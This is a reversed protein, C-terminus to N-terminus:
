ENPFLKSYMNSASTCSQNANIILADIEKKISDRNKFVWDGVEKAYLDTANTREKSLALAKTVIIKDSETAKDTFGETKVSTKILDLFEAAHNLYAIWSDISQVPLAKKLESFDNKAGKIKNLTSDISAILGAEDKSASYLAIDKAVDSIKELTIQLGNEIETAKLLALQNNVIISYKSYIDERISYCKICEAFWESATGSKSNGEALVKLDGVEKRIEELLIKSTEAKTISDAIQIDSSADSPYIGDYLNRFKEDNNIFTSEMENFKAVVNPVSNSFLLAIVFIVIITLVVGILFGVIMSKKEFKNNQVSLNTQEM